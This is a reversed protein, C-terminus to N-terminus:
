VVILHLQPCIAHYVMSLAILSRKTRLLVACQRDPVLCACFHLKGLLSPSGAPYCGQKKVNRKICYATFPINYITEAIERPYSAAQHREQVEFGTTPRILGRHTRNGDVGALCKNGVQDNKYCDSRLPLNGEKTTQSIGSFTKLM